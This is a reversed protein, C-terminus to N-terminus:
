EALLSADLPIVEDGEERVLGQREALAYLTEFNERGWTEWDGQLLEVLGRGVAALRSDLSRAKCGQWHSDPIGVFGPCAKEGCKEYEPSDTEVEALNRGCTECRAEYDAEFEVAMIRQGSLDRGTERATMGLHDTCLCLGGDCYWLTQKM